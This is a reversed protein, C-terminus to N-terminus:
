VVAPDLGKAEIMQSIREPRFTSETDIFAVSGGLGGQSKPLQANVCLQFGIQSKGSGFKGFIETIAQTEIGGGMLNDLELSGTTIKEILKRRELVDVGTEFGM